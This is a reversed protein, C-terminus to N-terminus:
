CSDRTWLLVLFWFCCVFSHMYMCRGALVLFLLMIFLCWFCVCAAVCCVWHHVHVFVGIGLGSAFGFSVFCCFFVDVSMLIWVCEYMYDSVCCAGLLKIGSHM